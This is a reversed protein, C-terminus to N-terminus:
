IKYILTMVTQSQPTMFHSIVPITQAVLQLSRFVLVQLFLAGGTQYESDIIITTDNDVDPPNGVTGYEDFTVITQGSAASAFLLYGVISFIFFRSARVHRTYNGVVM